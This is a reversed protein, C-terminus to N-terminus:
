GEELQNHPKDVHENEWLEQVLALHGQMRNTETPEPREDEWREGNLWTSAHPIFQREQGSRECWQRYEVAAVVLFGPGVKKAAKTFAKRATAKGDKRPYATWFEDFPNTKATLTPEEERPQEEIPEEKHIVSVKQDGENQDKPGENQDKPGLLDDQDKPRLHDPLRKPLAYINFTGYGKSRRQIRLLQNDKLWSVARKVSAPSLGLEDATTTHSPWCVGEENLRGELYVYVLKAHPPILPNRMVWHPAVAYGDPWTSKEM